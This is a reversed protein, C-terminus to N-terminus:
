LNAGNEDRIKKVVRRMRWPAFLEHLYCIFCILFGLGFTLSLGGFTFTGFNKVGRGFHVEDIGAKIFMYSITACVITGVLCLLGKIHPKIGAKSM